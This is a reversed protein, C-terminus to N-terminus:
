RGPGRKLMKQILSGADAAGTRQMPPNHPPVTCCEPCRDPTARVDYGCTPCVGTPQRSLRSCRIFYTGLLASLLALQWLPIAWTWRNGRASYLYWFRHGIIRYFGSGPATPDVMPRAVVYDYKLGQPRWPRALGFYHVFVLHGDCCGITDARSAHGWTLADNKWLSRPWFGLSVVCLVLSVAAALTFLKRRM